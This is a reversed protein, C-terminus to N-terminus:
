EEEFFILVELIDLLVRTKTGPKLVVEDSNKRFLCDRHLELIEACLEAIVGEFM